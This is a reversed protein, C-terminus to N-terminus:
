LQSVLSVEMGQQVEHRFKKYFEPDSLRRKDEDTFRDKTNDVKQDIAKLLSILECNGKTSDIDLIYSMVDSVFPPALWTKGRVYTYLHKVRPQIEPVIQTTSSGQFLILM